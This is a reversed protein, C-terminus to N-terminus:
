MRVYADELGRAGVGLNGDAVAVGQGEGLVGFRVKVGVVEVGRPLTVLEADGVGGRALRVGVGPLLVEIGAGPGPAREEVEHLDEVVVRQLRHDREVRPVPAHPDLTGVQGLAAARTDWHGAVRIPRRDMRHLSHVSISEVKVRDSVKRAQLIM